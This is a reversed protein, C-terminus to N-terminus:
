TVPTVQWHFKVVHLYGKIVLFSLSLVGQGTEAHFSFHSSNFYQCMSATRSGYESIINIKEKFDTLQLLLFKTGANNFKGTSGLCLCLASGRLNSFQEQSDLSMCVYM